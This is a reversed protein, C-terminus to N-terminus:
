SFLGLEEVEAEVDGEEGAEVEAALAEVVTEVLPALGAKGCVENVLAEAGAGSEAQAQEAGLAQEAWLLSPVVFEFTM